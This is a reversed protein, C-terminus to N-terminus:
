SIRLEPALDNFFHADYRQQYAAWYTPVKAYVEKATFGCDEVKVDHKGHGARPDADTFQQWAQTAETTVQINFHRYIKTATAVPDAQLEDIHVHIIRSADLQSMAAETREIATVWYDLTERGHQEHTLYSFRSSRVPYLMHAVSAMCKVPDRHTYVICADPFTELLLEPVWLHTTPDKLIWRRKDGGAILGLVKRYYAYAYHPVTNKVWEGYACHLPGAYALSPSWFASELGYRCEDPQDAFMPHMLKIAPFIQWFGELGQRTMQYWPNAEWTERPPRPMPTNGLWPTMWQTNPDRALLRHLTTSGTRPMGSIIIPREIPANAFEPHAKFGKQAFLRAILLGVLGGCTIQEGIPTFQGYKDYDSLLLKMPEVYDTTGFDTLGAIKAAQEHFEDFRSLYSM